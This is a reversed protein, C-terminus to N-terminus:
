LAREKDMGQEIFLCVFPGFSVLTDLAGGILSRIFTNLLQLVTLTKITEAKDVFHNQFARMELGYCEIVWTTDKNEQRTLSVLHQSCPSDSQTGTRPLCGSCKGWDKNPVTTLYCLPPPGQLFQRSGVMVWSHASGKSPLETCCWASPAPCRQWCGACEGPEQPAKSLFRAPELSMLAGQLLRPPFRWHWPLVCFPLSRGATTERSWFLLRFSCPTTVQRAPRPHSAAPNVVFGEVPCRPLTM